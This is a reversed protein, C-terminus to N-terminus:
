AGALPFRLTFTTGQDVQSHFAVTGEFQHVIKQVLYLGLGNGEINLANKARFMKEFIRQKEEEPIGRGTDEVEVIAQDGDKFCRVHVGGGEPTYKVANSLLNQIVMTFYTRDGYIAIDASQVDMQIRLRRKMGIAGFEAVLTALISPIVVLEKKVIFGKSELATSNLFSHIVDKMRESSELIRQTATYADGSAARLDDGLMEAYGHIATLPALLQHSAFSVLDSKIKELEREKSLDHIMIVAGEVRDHSVIPSAVVQVPIMSGDRRILECSKRVIKEGNQLHRVIFKSIPEELKVGSGLSKCRFVDQCQKGMVNVECAQALEIAIRNILLIYGENNVAVIGEGANDLISRTRANSQLLEMIAKELEDASSAVSQELLSKAGQLESFLASLDEVLLNVGLYLPTFDDSLETLTLRKSFDGVATRQLVPLVANLHERVYQRYAGLDSPQDM